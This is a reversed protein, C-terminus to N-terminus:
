CNLKDRMKCLFVCVCACRVVNAWFKSLAARQEHDHHNQSLFLKWYIVLNMEYKSLKRFWFEKNKENGRHKKKENVNDALNFSKVVLEM